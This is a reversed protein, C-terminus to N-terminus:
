HLKFCSVYSGVKGVRSSINWTRFSSVTMYEKPINKLFLKMELSHALREAAQCADTFSTVQFMLCPWVVQALGEAAWGTDTFSLVQFM